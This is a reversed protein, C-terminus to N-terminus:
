RPCKRMTIAVPTGATTKTGAAPSQTTVTPLGRATTTTSAPPPAATCSYKLGAAYLSKVAAGFALGTVTPVTTGNPWCGSWTIGVFSGTRLVTGPALPSSPIAAVTGHAPHGPIELSEVISQADANRTLCSRNLPFPVFGATRLYFRAANPQMGIINPVAVGSTTSTTSPPV